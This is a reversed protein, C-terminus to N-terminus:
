MFHDFKDPQPPEICTLYVGCGCCEYEGFEDKLCDIIHSDSFEFNLSISGACSIHYCSAEDGDPNWGVVEDNKSTDILRM